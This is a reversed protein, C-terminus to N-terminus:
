LNSVVSVEGHVIAEEAQVSGSISNHVDCIEQTVEVSM